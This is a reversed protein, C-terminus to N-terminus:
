LFPQARKMATLLVPRGAHMLPSRGRADVANVDGNAALLVALLPSRAPRGDADVYDIRAAWM